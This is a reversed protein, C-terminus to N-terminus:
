CGDCFAGQSLGPGVFGESLGTVKEGVYNRTFTWDYNDEVVATKLDTTKLASMDELKCRETTLTNRAARVAVGDHPSQLAYAVTERLPKRM